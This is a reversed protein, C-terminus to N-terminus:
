SLRSVNESSSKSLDLGSDGLSGYCTGDECYHEYISFRLFCLVMRVIGISDISMAKAIASPLVIRPPLLSDLTLPM